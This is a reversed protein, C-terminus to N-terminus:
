SMDPSDPHFVIRLHHLLETEAGQKGETLEQGAWAPTMLHEHDPARRQRLAHLTAILRDLGEADAHIEAEATRSQYEMTLLM